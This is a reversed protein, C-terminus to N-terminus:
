ISLLSLKELDFLSQYLKPLLDKPLALLPILLSEVQIQSPSLWALLYLIELSYPSTDKLYNLAGHLPGLARGIKRYDDVLDELPRFRNEPSTMFANVM